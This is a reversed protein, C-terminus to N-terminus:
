LRSLQGNIFRMQVADDFFAPACPAESEARLRRLGHAFGPGDEDADARGREIRSVRVKGGDVIHRPQNCGFGARGLKYDFLARDRDVRSLLQFARKRDISAVGPNSELYRRIWLKQTFSRRDSVEEMGITDHNSHVVPFRLFLKPFDVARDQILFEVARHVLPRAGRGGRGREDDGRDVAGLKDFM